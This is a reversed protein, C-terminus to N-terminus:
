ASEHAGHPIVGEDFCTLCPQLAPNQRCRPCVQYTGEPDLGSYRITKARLLSLHIGDAIRLELSYRGVALLRM